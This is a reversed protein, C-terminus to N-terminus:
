VKLIYVGNALENMKLTDYSKNATQLSISKGYVDYVEMKLIKIAPNNATVTMESQTPNPYVRLSASVPMEVIGVGEEFVVHITGNAHVNPMTYATVAGVSSGNVQVNKIKYGNNPTIIYSNNTASSYYMQLSKSGAYAYTTSYQCNGAYTWCAPPFTSGEFGEFFNDLPTSCDQSHCFFPFVLLCIAIFKKM